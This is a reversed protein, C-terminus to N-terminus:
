RDITSVFYLSPRPPLLVNRKSIIMGDFGGHEAEQTDESWRGRGYRGRVEEWDADRLVDLQVPPLVNNTDSSLSNRIDQLPTPKNSTASYRLDSLMM